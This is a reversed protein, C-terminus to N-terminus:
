LSQPVANTDRILVMFISDYSTGMVGGISFDIRGVILLLYPPHYAYRHILTAPFTYFVKNDAM